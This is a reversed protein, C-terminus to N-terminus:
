ELPNYHVDRKDYFFWDGSEDIPAVIMRHPVKKVEGSIEIRDTLENWLLVIFNKCPLHKM